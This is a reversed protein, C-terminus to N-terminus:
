SLFLSAQDNRTNRLAEKRDRFENDVSYIVFNAGFTFLAPVRGLVVHSNTIIFLIHKHLELVVQSLVVCVWTRGSGM